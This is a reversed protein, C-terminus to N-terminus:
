KKFPELIRYSNNIQCVVFTANDKIVVEIYNPNMYYRNAEERYFQRDHQKIRRCKKARAILVDNRRDSYYITDNNLTSLILAVETTEGRMIKFDFSDTATHQKNTGISVYAYDSFAPIAIVLEKNELPLNYYFTTEKCSATLVSAIVILLLNRIKM